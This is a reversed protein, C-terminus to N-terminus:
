IMELDSLSLVSGGESIVSAENQKEVEEKIAKYQKFLKDTNVVLKDLAEFNELTYELSDLLNNREDIKKKWTLLLRQEPTM